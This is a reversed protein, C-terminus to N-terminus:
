ADAAAGGPFHVMTKLNLTSEPYDDRETSLSGFFPGIDPAGVHTGGCTVCTYAM